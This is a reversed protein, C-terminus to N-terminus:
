GAITPRHGPGTPDEPQIADEGLEFAKHLANVADSVRDAILALEQNTSQARQLAAQLQHILQAQQTLRDDDVAPEVPRPAGADSPGNPPRTDTAPM